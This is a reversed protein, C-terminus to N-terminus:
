ISLISSINRNYVLLVRSANDDRVVFDNFPKLFLGTRLNNVFRILQRAKRLNIIFSGRRSAPSHFCKLIEDTRDVVKPRVHVRDRSFMETANFISVFRVLPITCVNSLVRPHAPKSPLPLPSRTTSFRAGERIRGRPGAQTQM